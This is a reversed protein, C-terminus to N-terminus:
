FLSILGKDKARNFSHGLFILALMIYVLNLGFSILIETQNISRNTILARANEFIYSSPVFHAVKQAWLPLTTVPYYVASFPSLLMIATWALTQVRTGFRLLIGTIFLGVAWGTLILSTIFPILYYGYTLINTKYMLYALIGAFGLSILLKIIGVVFVSIVWESLKLPTVFINVLNRNWLEELFNVTIEYQGRWIVIWFLIGSMIILLIDPLSTSQAQIFKSTLGWLLLDVTPWYFVDSMRDLSHKFYYWYRLVMAFIRHLKM